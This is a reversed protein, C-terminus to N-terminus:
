AATYGRAEARVGASPRRAPRSRGPEGTVLFVLDEAANVAHDAYREYYRSVLTADIAAEMGHVDVERAALLDALVARHLEDVMDDEDALGAATEADKSRVLWALREALRVGIRGMEEFSSRLRQPVATRPYRMRAVAAIHAALDGMRELEASMRLSVVLARLDGAVPQQRAMLELVGAEIEDSLADVTEDAAIVSEAVDLDAELVAWTARALAVGVLEAMRRLGHEITELQEHYADRM